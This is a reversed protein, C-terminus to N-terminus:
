VSGWICTPSLSFSRSTELNGLFEKWISEGLLRSCYIGAQCVFFDLVSSLDDIYTNLMAETNKGYGLFLPERYNAKGHYRSVQHLFCLTKKSLHQDRFEKAKKTRFNSVDLNKFDDSLMLDKETEERLWTTSGSFYSHCAGYAEDTSQPAEGSLNFREPGLLKEVETKADEKVLTTVRLAFPCAILNNASIKSDWDDATNAHSDQFSGVKAAIMASAAPYVGYYLATIGVRAVDAKSPISKLARLASCQHLAFILQELATNVEREKSGRETVSSYFSKSFEHGVGNNRVLLALGRMWNVTSPLSFAPDPVGKPESLTGVKTMRYHLSM